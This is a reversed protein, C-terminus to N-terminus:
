AWIRMSWIIATIFFLGTYDEFPKIFDIEEGPMVLVTDKLGSNVFGDRVTAYISNDQDTLTRSVVRFQQGHLHIPHPMSMMMMGMGGM